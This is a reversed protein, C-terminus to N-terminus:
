TDYKRIHFWGQTALILMTYGYLKDDLCLYKLLSLLETLLQVLAVFFGYLLIPYKLPRNM